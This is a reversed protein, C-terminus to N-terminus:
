TGFFHLPQPTILKTFRAHQECRRCRTKLKGSVRMRQKNKILTICRRMGWEQEGINALRVKWRRAHTHSITVWTHLTVWETVWTQMHAHTCHWEHTCTHAHTCHWETDIMHAHTCHWKTDSMHAHTYTDWLNDDNSPVECWDAPHSDHGQEPENPHPAQERDALDDQWVYLPHTIPCPSLPLMKSVLKNYATREQCRKTHPSGEVNNQIRDAGSMMKNCTCLNPHNCNM